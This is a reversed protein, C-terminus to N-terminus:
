RLLHLKTALELTPTAVRLFYIGSPASTGHDNSGDWPLSHTGAALHGRHLQRVRRGTVDYVAVSAHEARPLHFRAQTATHFPNPAARLVSAVAPPTQEEVGTATGDMLGTFYSAPYGQATTFFGGAYIENRFRLVTKVEVANSNAPLDIQPNWATLAGTTADVAALGRIAQGGLTSFKGGLYVRSGAINLTNVNNNANPNWALLAGSADLAAARNRAVGNITTFAGGLYVTQVAGQFTAVVSVKYVPGNANPSWANLTGSALDISALNTRSVGGVTTFLGGIFLSPPFAVDSGSVLWMSYVVGGPNPNWALLSGTTADLAALFKRSTGSIIQFSGCAYLTSGSLLLGLPSNQDGVNMNAVFSTPVGTTRDVAAFNIRTQGGVKDFRGGMYVTTAGVSYCLVVGTPEPAWPLVSGSSLDFAAANRRAVTNVSTCYGGAYIMGGSAALTLMPQNARPNWSTAAGTVVSAAGLCPRPQGGLTTFSGAAYISQGDLALGDVGQGGTAGPNWSTVTGAANIAALRARSLGNIGTFTGGVYLTGDSQDVVGTAIGGGSVPMNLTIAGSAESLAVLGVGAGIYLTGGFRGFMPGFTAPNWSLCAGTIPDVAALRQRLETGVQSFEGGIYIRGNDGAIDNLQGDTQPDWSTIAGSAITFSAAGLRAVGGIQSYYGAVYVTGGVVLLRNIWGDPSPNWSTVNGAADIQALYRRAAGRVHQFNGGIFWGGAGDSVVTFVQGDIRALPGVTGGSAEDLLVGGGVAPGVQTFTGGLYVTNQSIAATEVTGDTVWLDQRVQALAPACCALAVIISALTLRSAFPAAQRISM